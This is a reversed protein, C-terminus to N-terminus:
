KMGMPSSQRLSPWTREPRRLLLPAQLRRRQRQSLRSAIKRAKKANRRLSFVSKDPKPPEEHMAGHAREHSHSTGSDKPSRLGAKVDHGGSAAEGSRAKPSVKELVLRVSDEDLASSHSAVPIGLRKLEPILERNEMGLQKALEYVRM